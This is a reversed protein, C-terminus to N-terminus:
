LQSASRGGPLGDATRVQTFVTHSAQSSSRLHPSTGSLSPCFRAFTMKLSTVIDRLNEHQARPHGHTLPPGQPSSSTLTTMITPDPVM